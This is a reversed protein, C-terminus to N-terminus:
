IAKLTLGYIGNQKETKMFTTNTYGNTTTLNKIRNIETQPTNCGFIIEKLAAKKFDYLGKAQKFIRIEKEYKWPKFKTKIMKTVIDNPQAM